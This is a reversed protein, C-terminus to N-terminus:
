NKIVHLNIGQEKLYEHMVTEYFHTLFYKQLDEKTINELLDSLVNKIEDKNSTRLILDYYENGFANAEDIQDILKNFMDQFGQTTFLINVPNVLM